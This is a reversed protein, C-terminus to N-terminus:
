GFAELHQYKTSFFSFVCLYVYCTWRYKFSCMLVVIVFVTITSWFTAALSSGVTEEFAISWFSLPLLSCFYLLFSSSSSVTQTNHWPRLSLHSPRFLSLLASKVSWCDAAPTPSLFAGQVSFSKAQSLGLFFSQAWLRSLQCSWTIFESEKIAIQQWALKRKLCIGKGSLAAHFLWYHKGLRDFNVGLRRKM